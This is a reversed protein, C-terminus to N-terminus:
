ACAVCLAVTGHVVLSLTCITSLGSPPISLSILLGHVRDFGVTRGGM